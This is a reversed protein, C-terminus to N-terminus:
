GQYWISTHTWCCAELKKVSLPFTGLICYSTLHVRPRTVDRRLVSIRKWIPFRVELRGDRLFQIRATMAQWIGATAGHHVGRKESVWMEWWTRGDQLSANWEFHDQGTRTQVRCRAAETTSGPRKISSWKSRNCGASFWVTLLNRKLRVILRSIRHSLM